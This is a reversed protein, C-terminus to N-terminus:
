YYASAFALVHPTSSGNSHECTIHNRFLLIGTPKTLFAFECSIIINVIDPRLLQLHSARIKRPMLLLLRLIPSQINGNTTYLIIKLIHTNKRCSRHTSLIRFQERNRRIIKRRHIFGHEVIYELMKKKENRADEYFEFGVCDTVDLSSIACVCLPVATTVSVWGAYSTRIAM